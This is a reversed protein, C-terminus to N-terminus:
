AHGLKNSRIIARGRQRVKTGRFFFDFHLEFSDNGSNLPLLGFSQRDESVRILGMPALRVDLGGFESRESRRLAFRSAPQVLGDRTLVAPPTRKHPNHKPRVASARDCRAKGIKKRAAPGTADIQEGHLTSKAATYGTEPTVPLAGGPASAGCGIKKQNWRKMTHGGAPRAPTPGRQGCQPPNVSADAPPARRGSQCAVPRTAFSVALLTEHRAASDHEPERGSIARYKATSACTARAVAM